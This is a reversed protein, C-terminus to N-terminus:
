ILLELWIFIFWCAVPHEIFINHKYIAEIFAMWKLYPVDTELNNEILHDGMIFNHWHSVVSMIKLIM